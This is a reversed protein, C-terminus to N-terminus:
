EVENPAHLPQDLAQEGDAVRVRLAVQMRESPAATAPASHVLRPMAM